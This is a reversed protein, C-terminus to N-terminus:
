NDTDKHEEETEHHAQLNLQKLESLTFDGISFKRVKSHAKNIKEGTEGILINLSIDPSYACSPPERGYVQAVERLMNAANGCCLGIYQVGIDKAEEAFRKVDSRNCLCCTLDLPYLHRDTDSERFSMFTPYKETTRFPVPLAAIPGKCAKRIKRLLPLMTDPGRSCNLGVVAAGEEELTRCAKPFPIDDLTIDPVYPTLTMVAPVGAKKIVDLAILAEGLYCFTEAIIYDCGGDIAWQVQETFMDRAYTHSDKDDVSYVGTGNINGAMLTGTEDAVERAMRLAAKNMRELDDERGISRLKERHAYYTFAEVVDSGAHVYERHMAKVMEPNELVVEPVFGGSKLYGRREFEWMYGEAIIINEGDKLREALGKTTM